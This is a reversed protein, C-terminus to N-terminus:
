STRKSAKVREPKEFASNIAEAAMQRLNKKKPSVDGGSMHLQELILLAEQFKKKRRFYSSIKLKWKYPLPQDIDLVCLSEGFLSWIRVIQSNTSTIIVKPPINIVTLVFIAETAARFKYHM